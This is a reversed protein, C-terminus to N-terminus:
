PATFGYGTLVAAGEASTVSGVFDAALAAHDSAKLVTIPYDTTANVDGPIEVGAVAAGASRVDTAYVLAADVEGLRVKALAAKVDPEESVARVTVGARELVTRALAGCPVEVQCLAVTVEPRALDAPAAVRGPNGPPVAIALTNRAFVIQTGADGTAVVGDMVQVSASAFVDAPAGDAIQAALASSGGFSLRVTVGPQDAEFRAALDTFPETLSAAALM